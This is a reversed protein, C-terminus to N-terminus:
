KKRAEEAEECLRQSQTEIQIELREMIEKSSIDSPLPPLFEFVAKGPYKMWKGRPWFKGTNLALPVIPMNTTNQMHAIGNKYPKDETTHNVKVRTGQPFIILPRSLEAIHQAGAIIQKASKVPNSRDIAIMDMRQLFKGWVPISLLEKKLIIAPDSFILHLKLTEYTSYHKAAILFSGEKPLNELGRIEYDLNIIHKELAYLGNLYIRVIKLIMNRPAFIFPICAVCTMATYIYFMANFVSARLLIM